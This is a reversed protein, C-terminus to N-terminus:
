VVASGILFVVVLFLYWGVIKESMELYIFGANRIRDLNCIGKATALQDSKLDMGPALQDFSHYLAWAFDVFRFAGITSKVRLLILEFREPYPTGARLVVKRRFDQLMLFYVLAYIMWVSLVIYILRSKNTGYDFVFDLFIFEMM